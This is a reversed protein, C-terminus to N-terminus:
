SIFGDPPPRSPRRPSFGGDFPENKIMKISKRDCKYRYDAEQFPVIALSGGAPHELISHYEAPITSFESAM